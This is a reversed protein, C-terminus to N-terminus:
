VIVRDPDTKKAGFDNVFHSSLILIRLCVVFVFDERIDTSRHRPGTRVLLVYLMSQKRRSIKYIGTSRQIYTCSMRTYKAHLLYIAFAHICVLMCAYMSVSVSVRACDYIGNSRRCVNKCANMM